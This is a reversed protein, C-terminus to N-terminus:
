AKRAADPDIWVVFPPLTQRGVVMVREVGPPVVCGHPRHGAERAPDVYERRWLRRALAQACNLVIITRVTM